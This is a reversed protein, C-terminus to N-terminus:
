RCRAPSSTTSCRAPASSSPPCRGILGARSTRPSSIHRARHRRVPVDALGDRSGSTRRTSSIGHRGPRGARPLDGELRCRHRGRARDALAPRGPLAAARDGARHHARAAPLGVFATWGAARLARPRRASWADVTELLLELLTAPPWRCSSRCGRSSSASFRHGVVTLTTIGFAFRRLAAMRRQSPTM